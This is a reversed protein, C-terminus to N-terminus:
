DTLADSTLTDSRRHPQEHLLLGSARSPKCHVQSSAFVPGSTRSPKCQGQTGDISGAFFFGEPGQLRACILARVCRTSSQLFVRAVDAGSRKLQLVTLRTRLVDDACNSADPAPLHSSLVKVGLTIFNLCSTVTHHTPARRGGRQLVHRYPHLVGSELRGPLCTASILCPVARPLGIYKYM